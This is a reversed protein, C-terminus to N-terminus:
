PPDVRRVMGDPDERQRLFKGIGVEIRRGDVRVARYPEGALAANVAADIRSGAFDFGPPRRLAGSRVSHCGRGRALNPVGREGAIVEALDIRRRPLRADDLGGWGGEAGGRGEGM